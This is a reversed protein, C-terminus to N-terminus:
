FDFGFLVRLRRYDAARVDPNNHRIEHRLGMTLTETLKKNVEFRNEWGETQNTLSYYYVARDTLVIRWPLKSEVETFVSEVNQSIHTAIPTPTVWTDFLNESLGARLKRNETSILNVGAGLEQQLLIYDAPDGDRFYARNWELTPRYISFLKHPFDHRWMADGKIMDTSTTDDTSAYDHRGNLQFEDKAWKRLLHGEITSSDHKSSDQMVEAALAFRGHWSGFFDKLLAAMALPSFPAREVEVSPKADKKEAAKEAAAVAPTPPKALIVEAESAPVRLVGFRESKFVLTDGERTLLHGRVRDGDRYVLEDLASKAPATEPTRPKSAGMAAFNPAPIERIGAHAMPALFVAFILVFFFYSRARPQPFIRAMVRPLVAESSIPKLFFIGMTLESKRRLLLISAAPRFM